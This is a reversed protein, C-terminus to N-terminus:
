TRRYMELRRDEHQYGITIGQITNTPTAEDRLLHPYTYPTYTNTHTGCSSPMTTSHECYDVEGNAHATSKIHSAQLTGGDGCGSLFSATAGDNNWLYYPLNPQSTYAGGGRGIQDMCPWGNDSVNGDHTSDNGDCEEYCSRRDGIEITNNSGTFTNNFIVGTGGLIWLARSSINITNEYIEWKVPGRKGNTDAWHGAISAGNVTNHRFVIRGGYNSDTVWSDGADSMNFTCDEIYTASNTGLGVAVSEWSTKGVNGAVDGANNWGDITIGATVHTMNFTCSDIVGWVVGKVTIPRHAGSSCNATTTFTINDIRWGSIPTATDNDIYIGGSNNSSGLKIEMATIRFEAKTEAVVSISTTSLFTLETNSQGQGQITINKNSWSVQATSCSGSLINVIDGDASSNIASQLASTITGSCTVPYDTAFAVTPFLLVFIIYFIRRM